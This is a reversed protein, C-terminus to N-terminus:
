SVPHLEDDLMLQLTPYDVKGNPTLPINTLRKVRVSSAHIALKEKLIDKITAAELGDAMHAVLLTKDNVGLCLCTKGQLANKLILEVEDLNFRTGFLKIIRKIRGIIYYYGDEDVTAQDGTFLKEQREYSALDHLAHAYGGFIHEGHFVLERTEPDIEFSGKGVAKGIAGYKRLLDEPQLAAMRGSAETQGYQAFFRKNYQANYAAITEVLNKNLLGGTHTMYRLSPHNKKFFGIRHLMEYFYPVGGLTSYQYRDFDRWFEKQLADRNTCVMKAAALCNTTFISLGFVFIIPVNLPVVDKSDIPMYEMIAKANHVLNADSIKVFKPSGTSGSTSLLLKISPDIIPFTPDQRRFLHIDGGANVADYGSVVQRSPDFIYYPRYRAELAQKFSEHLQRGLLAVAHNSRYFNLFVEVSDLRNDNYIFVLSRKDDLQLSGDIDRLTKETGSEADVFRLHENKLILDYLEM